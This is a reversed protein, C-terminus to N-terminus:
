GVVGQGYLICLEDLYACLASKESSHNKFCPLCVTHEGDLNAEQLLTPVCYVGLVPEPLLTLRCQVRSCAITSSALYACM